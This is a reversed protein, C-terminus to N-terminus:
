DDDDDDGGGDGGGEDDPNNSDHCALCTASSLTQTHCDRCSAGGHNVGSGGEDAIAPEEPSFDNADFRRENRVIADANRSFWNPFEIGDTTDLLKEYPPDFTIDLFKLVEETFKEVDRISFDYLEEWTKVDVQKMFRTLQAREIVDPTPTWAFPQGDLLSTDQM